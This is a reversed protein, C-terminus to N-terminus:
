PRLRLRVIVGHTDLILAELESLTQPLMTPTVVLDYPGPDTGLGQLEQIAEVAANYVDAESVTPRLRVPPKPEVAEALVCGATFALTFGLIHRFTLAAWRM